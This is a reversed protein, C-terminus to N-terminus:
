DFLKKLFPEEVRFHASVEEILEDLGNNEIKIHELKELYHNFLSREPLIEEGVFEESPQTGNENEIQKIMIDVIDQIIILNKVTEFTKHLGYYDNQLLEGITM